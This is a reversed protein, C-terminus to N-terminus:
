ENPPTEEKRPRGRGRKVETEQPETVTEAIVDEVVEVEVSSEIEQESTNETENRNGVPEIPPLQYPEVYRCNRCELKGERTDYLKGIGCKNCDKIIEAM